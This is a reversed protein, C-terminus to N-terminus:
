LGGKELFKLIYTNLLTIYAINILYNYLLIVNSNILGLGACRNALLCVHLRAAVLEGDTSQETNPNKLHFIPQGEM